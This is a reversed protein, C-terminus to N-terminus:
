YINSFNFVASVYRIVPMKFVCRCKSKLSFACDLEIWVLLIKIRLLCWTIHYMTYFISIFNHISDRCIFLVISHFDRMSNFEWHFRFIINFRKLSINAMIRVLLKTHMVPVKPGCVSFRMPIGHQRQKENSFYLHLHLYVYQQTKM